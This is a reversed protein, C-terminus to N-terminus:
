GGDVKRTIGGAPRLAVARRAAERTPFGLADAPESSWLSAHRAENLGAVYWRTGRVSTEFGVWADPEVADFGLLAGGFAATVATSM